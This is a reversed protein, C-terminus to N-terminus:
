LAPSPVSPTPSQWIIMHSRESRQLVSESAGDSGDDGIRFNIYGEGGSLILQSTTAAGDASSSSTRCGPASIIFKVAQRHGHYCLQASALSCYPISCSESSLSLRASFIAGSGTGVWLRGSVVSLATIQLPSLSLFASGLAKNVISSLDVEQLPRGTTWDFLRLIPDLRCSAWVGSGAACLFRVQQESRESVTFSKEVKRNKVSIMYVKNWYGVWLCGEKALCCRIPQLPPTGLSLVEQSQLNWIGSNHTFFALTGNALGAIVEGQSYTLSHVGESLSVSQLCRRRSSSSSHILVGGDQTGIWVTGATDGTPPVACICLAPSSPPLSFQDLITNSRAPDIVTVDSSSVPGTVAWVSCTQEGSIEPPVAVACTLKATADRQDLLRLQILVPVDKPEAPPESDQEVYVCVNSEQSKTSFIFRDLQCRLFDREEELDEIRKQLWSNKELSIQLQTRLNTILLYSSSPAPPDSGDFNQDNQNYFGGQQEFNNDEFPISIEYADENKPTQLERSGAHKRTASDADNM